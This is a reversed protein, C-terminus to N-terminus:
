ASRFGEGIVFSQGDELAAEIDDDPNLASIAERGSADLAELKPCDESSTAPRCDIAKQCMAAMEPYEYMLYDRAKALAVRLQICESQMDLLLSREADKISRSFEPAVREHGHPADEKWGQARGRDYGAMIANCFWGLVEDVGNSSTDYGISKGEFQQVFAKAWEMGDMGLRALFDAPTEGKPAALSDGEKWAPDPHDDAADYTAEFIDPKCPYLEGKIGQIIWDGPSAIHQGEMTGIFLEKPPDGEGIFAQGPATWISGTSHEPGALAETLWDRMGDAVYFQPDGFDTLGIFRVAEITVPKKTYRM